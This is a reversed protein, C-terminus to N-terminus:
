LDIERWYTNPYEEQAKPKKEKKGKKKATVFKLKDYTAPDLNLVKSDYIFRFINERVIVDIGSPVYVQFLGNSLDRAGTPSITLYGLGKLVIDINGYFPPIVYRVLNEGASSDVIIGKEVAKLKARSVKKFNNLQSVRFDAGMICNFTKMITGKPPQVYLIGGVCYFENGNFIQSTDHKISQLVRSKPDYSAFKKVKTVDKQFEPTIYKYIGADPNFFGPTDILTANKKKLKFEVSDRTFCPLNSIGPGYHDKGKLKGDDRKILAKILSSKGTNINGVFYLRTDPLSRHLLGINWDLRSSVCLVRDPNAGVLKALSYKFFEDSKAMKSTNGHLADIKNVIYWIKDRHRGESVKKNVSLPYDLSSIVHVINADIPIKSMISEVDVFTQTKSDIEQHHLADICRQCKNRTDPNKLSRSVDAYTPTDVIEDGYLDAVSKDLDRFQSLLEKESIKALTSDRDISKNVRKSEHVYYGDKEPDTHQLKVGCSACQTQQPKVIDDVIKSNQLLRHQQQQQHHTSALRFPGQRTHTFSRHHLLIQSVTGKPVRSVITTGHDKIQHVCRARVVTFM